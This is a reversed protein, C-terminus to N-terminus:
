SAVIAGQPEVESVGLGYRQVHVDVDHWGMSRCVASVARMEFHSTTGEFEHSAACLSVILASCSAQLGFCLSSAYVFTFEHFASTLCFKGGAVLSVQLGADAM